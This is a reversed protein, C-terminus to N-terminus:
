MDSTNQQTVLAEAKLMQAEEMLRAEEADDREKETVEAGRDRLPKGNKNKKQNSKQTKKIQTTAGGGNGGADGRRGGGLATSDTSASLLSVVSGSADAGSRERKKGAAVESFTREDRNSRACLRDRRCVFLELTRTDCRGACASTRKRQWCKGMRSNHAVHPRYRAVPMAVLCNINATEM